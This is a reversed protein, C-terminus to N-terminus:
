EFPEFHKHGICFWEIFWNKILVLSCKCCHKKVDALAANIVSTGQARSTQLEFGLGALNRSGALVYCSESHLRYLILNQNAETITLLKQLKL